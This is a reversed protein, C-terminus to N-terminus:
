ITVQKTPYWALKTPSILLSSKHVTKFHVWELHLPSLTSLRKNLLCYRLGRLGKTGGKPWDRYQLVASSTPCREMHGNPMHLKQSHRKLDKSWKWNTIISDISFKRWMRDTSMQILMNNNYAKIDKPRLWLVESLWDSLKKPMMELPVCFRSYVNTNTAPTSILLGLFFHEIVM